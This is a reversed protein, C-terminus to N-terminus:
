REAILRNDREIRDQRAEDFTEGGIEMDDQTM